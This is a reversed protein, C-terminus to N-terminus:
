PTTSTGGGSASAPLCAAVNANALIGKNFAATLQDATVQRAAAQSAPPATAAIFKNVSAADAPTLNQQIAGFYLGSFCSDITRLDIQTLSSNKFAGLANEIHYGYLDSIDLGVAADGIPAINTQFYGLPLFVTGTGICYQPVDNTTIQNSGCTGPTQDVITVTAAPLPLQNGQFLPSWFSAVSTTITAMKQTLSLGDLGAWHAQPRKPAKVHALAALTPKRTGTV